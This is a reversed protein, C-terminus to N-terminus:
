ITLNRLLRFDFIIMLDKITIEFFIVRNGQICNYNRYIFSALKNTGQRCRKEMRQTVPLLGETCQRAIYNASREGRERCIAHFRSFYFHIQYLDIIAPLEIFTVREISTM